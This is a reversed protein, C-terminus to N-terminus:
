GLAQQKNNVISQKNCPQRLQHQSCTMASPVTVTVASPQRMNKSLFWTKLGPPTLAIAIKSTMRLMAKRTRTARATTWCPWFYKQINKLFASAKLLAAKRKTFAAQLKRFAGKARFPRCGQKCNVLGWGFVATGTLGVLVSDKCGMSAPIIGDCGLLENLLQNCSLVRGQFM